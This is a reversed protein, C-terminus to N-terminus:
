RVCVCVRMRWNMWYELNECARNDESWNNNNSLVSELQSELM